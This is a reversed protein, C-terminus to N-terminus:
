RRPVRKFAVLRLAGTLGIGLMTALVIGGGVWPQGFYACGVAASIALLMVLFALIQSRSEVTRRHQSETEWNNVIRNAGDPLADNYEQLMHPPPLPGSYSAVTQFVAAVRSLDGSQLAEVLEETDAPLLGPNVAELDRDGDHRNEAGEASKEAADSSPRESDATPEPEDKNAKHM